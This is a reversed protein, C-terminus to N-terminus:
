GKVSWCPCDKGWYRRTISIHGIYSINDTYAIPVPNRSSWLCIGFSADTKDPNFYECNDCFQGIDEISADSSIMKLELSSFKKDSDINALYETIRTDNNEYERNDCVPVELLEQFLEGMRAKTAPSLEGTKLYDKHRNNGDGMITNPITM